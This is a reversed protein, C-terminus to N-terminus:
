KRSFCKELFINEERGFVSKTYDTESEIIEKLHCGKKHTKFALICEM